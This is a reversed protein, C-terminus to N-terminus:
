GKAGQLCYGSWDGIDEFVEILKVRSPIKCGRFTVLGSRPLFSNRHGVSGARTLRAAYDKSPLRGLYYRTAGLVRTSAGEFPFDATANLVSDSGEILTSAVKHEDPALGCTRGRRLLDWLRGSEMRPMLRVGVPVEQGITFYLSSLFELSAPEKPTTLLSPVLPAIVDVLDMSSSAYGSPLIRLSDRGKRAVLHRSKRVRFGRAELGEGIVKLQSPSLKPLLLYHRGGLDLQHVKFQLL